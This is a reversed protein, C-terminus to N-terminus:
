LLKIEEKHKLALPTAVIMLIAMSPKIIIVLKTNSNIIYWVLRRKSLFHVKLPKNLSKSWRDQWQM